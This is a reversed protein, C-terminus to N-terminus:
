KKKAMTVKKKRENKKKKEIQRLSNIERDETANRTYKKKKKTYTHMTTQTYTETHYKKKEEGRKM